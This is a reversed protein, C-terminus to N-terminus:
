ILLNEWSSVQKPPKTPSNKPNVYYSPSLSVHVITPLLPSILDVVLTNPRALAHNQVVLAM